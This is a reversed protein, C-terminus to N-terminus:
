GRQFFRQEHVKGGFHGLTFEIVKDPDFARCSFVDIFAEAREDSFHASILSTEIPQAVSWGSTKPDDHGFHAAFPPGYAKMDIFECLGTAWRRVSDGDCIAPTDCGALDLVLHWGFPERGTTATDTM